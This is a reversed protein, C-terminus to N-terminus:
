LVKDAKAPLYDQLQWMYCLHGVETRRLSKGSGNAVKTIIAERSREVLLAAYRQKVSPNKRRQIRSTTRSVHKDVLIDKVNPEPYESPPSTARLGLWVTVVRRTESTHPM